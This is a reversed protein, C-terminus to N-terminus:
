RCLNLELCYKDGRYLSKAFEIRRGQDDLSVRTILLAPSLEPVDLLEAEEKSVVTPRVVQEARAIRIGYKGNLLSFLSAAEDLYDEIGPVLAGPLAGRELCMPEKNALRLREVRLVADKPSLGLAQGISAGAASRSVSLVRSSPRLGRLAMDESFSTLTMEKRVVPEAVFTGRGQVRYIQGAEALEALARRVTTRSLGFREVLYRESPLSDHPELENEIFKQLEGELAGHKTRGGVEAHVM